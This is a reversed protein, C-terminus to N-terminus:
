KAKTSIPLNANQWAALGGQLTHVTPFGDKKLISGANTARSAVRCYVIIPKDKYKALDKLRNKLESFPIHRAEPIHGAKYDGGDRIDLVIADQHNILQLAQNPNVASVGRLKRMVEGGILLGLIVFLAAFLYWHRAAFDIFQEM